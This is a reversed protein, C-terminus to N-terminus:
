LGAAWINSGARIKKENKLVESIHVWGGVTPVAKVGHGMTELSRIGEGANTTLEVPEYEEVHLRPAEAAARATMRDDVIRPVLQTAVSVIRRGGRLGLAVDKDAMRLIAPCVNNLPRKGAGVSNPHGALPTFRCMGHGLIVGTGPATVCSGFLGGHSMTMAVMNGESDAASIHATGPSAQAAPGVTQDVRKPAGLLAEARSAAYEKSLFKAVDVRAKEPDGFYRLRDRWCLKLVEALRHYRLPDDAKVADFLELMHLAQLMTLGGNPLRCGFVKALRYRGELPTGIRPQFKAMDERTLIGGAAKVHDGIKRGLEGQYFDKWGAREIRHLTAALENPRWVDEAKPPASAAMLFRLTEPFKALVRRQSAIARAMTGYEFGATAAEIAPAIVERWKLRGWKEHLIGIGGLQGPVGAALPGYVNADDKVSVRYENENIGSVGPAKAVVAYMDPRAAEPAVSNSDIEHVRGTRGELVLGCCVYGGLGCMEQAMVSTVLMSAAAADFANGGAGFMRAGARVAAQPESAVAGRSVVIEKGEMLTEASWGPVGLAGSAALMRRRSMEKAEPM